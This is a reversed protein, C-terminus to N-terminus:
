GTRTFSSFGSQSAFSQAQEKGVAKLAAKWASLYHEIATDYKGATIDADGKGLEDNAKTIDSANGNATISENIIVLALQRDDRTLRTIFGQLIADSIVGKKSKILEMLKKVTEKEEDFVSSSEKSKLRNDDLWLAAQLSNSLRTIAETLKGKDDQNTLTNKFAMMKNLIYQKM